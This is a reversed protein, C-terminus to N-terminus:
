RVRQWVIKSVREEGNVRTPPPQLTLLDGTFEYFRLQETGTQAPNVSGEVHITVAHKTEDVTFTGFYGLVSALARQAEEPTASPGAPKPRGSALHQVMAHGTADFIFYGLRSSDSSLLEGTARRQEIRVLRWTGVFQTRADTQLAAGAPGALAPALWLGALSAAALGGLTGLRRRRM